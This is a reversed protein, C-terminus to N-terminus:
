SKSLQFQDSVQSNLTENHREGGLQAKVQSSLDSTLQFQGFAAIKMLIQHQQSSPEQESRSISQQKMHAAQQANHLNSQNPILTSNTKSISQLSVSNLNHTNMMSGAPTKLFLKELYIGLLNIKESLFWLRLLHNKALWPPIHLWLFAWKIKWSVNPTGQCSSTMLATIRDEYSFQDCWIYLILPVSQCFVPFSNRIYFQHLAELNELIRVGVSLLESCWYSSAASVFQSADIFVSKGNRHLFRDDTKRVWDAEPYLVLYLPTWKNSQKLMRCLQGM